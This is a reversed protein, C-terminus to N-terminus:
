VVWWGVGRGVLWGLWCLVVGGRLWRYPHTGISTHDTLSAFFHIYTHITVLEFANSLQLFFNPDVPPSNPTSPSSYEPLKSLVTRLLGRAKRTEALRRM